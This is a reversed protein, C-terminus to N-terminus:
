LDGRLRQLAAKNTWSWVADIASEINLWQYDSHENDDLRIQVPGVLRYRFEYETNHTVNPAYRDSWRPDIEFERSQGTDIMEGETTLSTEERLEREAAIASAENEDLSGTVSQWFSFPECRKLLLVDSKDTYVIVLVSEPRRYRAM